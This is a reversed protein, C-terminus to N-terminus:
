SFSKIFRNKSDCGYFTAGSLAGADTRAVHLSDDVSTARSLADADMGVVGLLDVLLPREVLLARMRAPLTSRIMRIRSNSGPEPRVSAAHRICALRALPVPAQEQSALPPRTLLVHAVQRVSRSLAQFRTSIGSLCSSPM